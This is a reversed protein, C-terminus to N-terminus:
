HGGTHSPWQPEVPVGDPRARAHKAIGLGHDLVLEVLSAARAMGLTFRGHYKIIVLRQKLVGFGLIGIHLTSLDHGQPLVGVSQPSHVSAKSAPASSESCPAPPM